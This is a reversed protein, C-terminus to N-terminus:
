RNMKHTVDNLICNSYQIWNEVQIWFLCTLINDDDWDRAVIWRSDEKKQKDIWNSMTAANNLLAKTPKEKLFKRQATAGMNCHETMFKIDDLIDQNFIKDQQFQISEVSLEHNHENVITNVTINGNNSSCSVNLHWPCSIKKTFTKQKSKSEYKKGHEHIYSRKLVINDDKFVRDKIIKFGRSKSWKDLFSDCIIWSSFKKGEYLSNEEVNAETYNIDVYNPEEINAEIYNINIHDM